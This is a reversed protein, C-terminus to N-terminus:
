LDVQGTQAAYRDHIPQLTTTKFTLWTTATYSRGLVSNCSNRAQADTIDGASIRELLWWVMKDRKGPDSKWCDALKTWFRSAFESLTQNKLTLAM